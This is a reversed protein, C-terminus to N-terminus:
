KTNHTANMGGGLPLPNEAVVSIFIDNVHVQSMIHFDKEEYLFTHWVKRAPLEMSISIEGIRVPFVELM